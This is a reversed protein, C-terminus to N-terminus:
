QQLYRITQNGAETGSAVAGEMNPIDVENRVWDGSLFLNNFHTTTTPRFKNVGPETLPYREYHSTNRRFVDKIVGAQMPDKAGPIKKFGNLVITKIQEDTKEEFGTEQGVWELVSGFRADNRYEDILHKYDIVTPMPEDLGNIACPLRPLVPEKTWLQWSLTAVSSINNIKLFSDNWFATDGRNLEKFCDLPIAIIVADMGTIRETTQPLVPVEPTWRKNGSEHPKPDPDAIVLGQVSGNQHEVSLLKKNQVITGGLGQFHAVIPAIIKEGYSGNVFFVNPKKLLALSKLTIYASVEGPWNFYADRYFRFMRKKMLNAPMGNEEAWHTYCVDDFQEVDKKGSFYKLNALTFRALQGNEKGSYGLEIGEAKIKSFKFLKNTQHLKGTDEEYFLGVGDTSVFTEKAKVGCKKLLALLHTYGELIAHFGHVINFGDADRWSAARGGLHHGMNYLTVAVNKHQELVQIGAALGALGGGIIVVQKKGNNGM